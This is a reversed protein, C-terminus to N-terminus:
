KKNIGELGITDNNSENSYKLFIQDIFWDFPPLGNHSHDHEHSHEHDDLIPLDLKQALKKILNSETLCLPILFIVLCTILVIRFNPCM